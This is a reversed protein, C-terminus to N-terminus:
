SAGREVKAQDEICYRAAPLAELREEGIPRGCAECTGYSGEELRHKAHQIAILQAEIQDLIALDKTRGFTETGMDAPHQDHSSLEGVSETEPARAPDRVGEGHRLDELRLREQELRAAVKEKNPRASM